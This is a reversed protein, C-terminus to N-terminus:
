TKESGESGTSSDESKASAPKGMSGILEALAAFFPEPGGADEFTLRGIERLACVTVPFPLTRAAPAQDPEDAALAIVQAAIQPANQTLALILRSLVDGHLAAKGSGIAQKITDFLLDAEHAHATFLLACDDLSLGRVRLTQAGVAVDATRPRYAALSLM